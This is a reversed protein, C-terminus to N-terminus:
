IANTNYNSFASDNREYEEETFCDLCQHDEYGGRGDEVEYEKGCSHCTKDEETFYDPVIFTTPGIKLSGNPLSECGDLVLCGTSESIKKQLKKVITLKLDPFVKEMKQEHYLWERCVKICLKAKVEPVSKKEMWKKINFKYWSLYAKNTTTQSM